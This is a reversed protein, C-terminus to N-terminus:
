PPSSRSAPARTPACRARTRALRPHDRRARRIATRSRATSCRAASAAPSRPRARRRAALPGLHGRARARARRRRVRRGAGRRGVRRRSRHGPPPPPARERWHRAAPPGPTRGRRRDLDAFAAGRGDHVAEVDTERMPRLEMARARYAGPASTGQPRHPLRRARELVVPAREGVALVAVARPHRHQQVPQQEVLPHVDRERAREGLAAVADDREVQEAVAARVARRVHPAVPHAEEGLVDDRQEVVEADVLGDDAARREARVRRELDRRERGLPQAPHHDLHRHEVVRQEGARDRERRQHDRQRDALRHHLRERPHRPQDRSARTGHAAFTSSSVTRWSGAGLAATSCPM